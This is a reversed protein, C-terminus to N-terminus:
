SRVLARRWAAHDAATDIDPLSELRAVRHRRGFNAVTDALAHESSWRVGRFPDIMSPRRRLGILWYGGDPSPGLVADHGELASFAAAIHQHEIGPIDSGIIIVPGPPASRIIRSLRTGLDGSGQALRDLRGPWFRGEHAFRDPAVALYTRWARSDGVRRLLQATCERYFLWAARRGIGSALRRKVAGYRPARVFVIM